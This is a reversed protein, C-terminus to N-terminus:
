WGLINGRDMVFKDPGVKVGMSNARVFVEMGVELGEPKFPKGDIDTGLDLVKMKQIEVNDFGDLIGKNTSNEVKELLVRGYFAKRM